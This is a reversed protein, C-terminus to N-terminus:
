KKVKEYQRDNDFRCVNELRKIIAAGPLASIIGTTLAVALYLWLPPGWLRFTLLNACIAASIGALANIIMIQEYINIETNQFILICIDIVIGPVVYGVIAFIGMSGTTGMALALISQVICMVTASGNIKCMYAAILIFMISFGTAIGGPIHLMETIINAGPSIIKKTIMGIDCCLAMFILKSVSIRGRNM